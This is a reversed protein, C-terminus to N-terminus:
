MPKIMSEILAIEEKSLSYKAYLQADTWSQSFDQMPVFSYAKQMANQTIKVISVLIHFFKTQMYSIVNEAIQKNEYPGIILYTETCCSGPEVIFPTIWDTKSNGVGWAKPILIKYSDIWDVNKKVSDRKIYGVGKKHWGNYYFKISDEFSTLSFQPKVRKFSNNERVDYGFPDNASIINSFSQENLKQIKRIIGIIRSDRIFVEANHERMPREVM